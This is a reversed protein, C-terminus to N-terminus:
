LSSNMTTLLKNLHILFPLSGQVHVPITIPGVPARAVLRGSFQKYRGMHFPVLQVPKSCHQRLTCLQLKHMTAKTALQGAPGSKCYNDQCKSSSAASGSNSSRQPRSVASWFRSSERSLPGGAASEDGPTGSGELGAAGTSTSTGARVSAFISRFTSGDGITRGTLSLTRGSPPPPASTTSTLGLDSAEEQQLHQVLEPPWDIRRLAQQFQLCFAVADLADSFALVYSDGEQGVVFGYHTWAAKRVANNHQSMAKGMVLPMAVILASYSEIDTVVISVKGSTPAGVLRKKVDDYARKLKPLGFRGYWSVYGLYVLLALAVASAAVSIGAVEAGTLAKQCQLANVWVTGHLMSQRTEKYGARCQCELYHYYSPSVDWQPQADKDFNILPGNGQCYREQIVTPCQMNENSLFGEEPLPIQWATFDLNLYWPLADNIDTCRGDPGGSSCWATMNTDSIDVSQLLPLRGLGALDSGCIRAESGNAKYRDAENRSIGPLPGGIDTYDLQLGSLGVSFRWRPDLTGTLRSNNNLYLVSLRSQFALQWPVNGTIQNSSAEVVTLFQLYTWSIPISGTLFNNSLAMISLQPAQLHMQACVNNDADFLADWHQCHKRQM